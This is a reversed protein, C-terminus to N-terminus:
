TCIIKLNANAVNANTIGISVGGGGYTGAIVGGRSLTGVPNNANTYVPGGSGLAGAAGGIESLRQYDIM